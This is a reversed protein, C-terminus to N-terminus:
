KKFRVLMDEGGHYESSYRDSSDVDQVFAFFITAEGNWFLPELIETVKQMIVDKQEFLSKDLVCYMQFYAINEINSYDNVNVPKEHFRMSMCESSMKFEGPIM